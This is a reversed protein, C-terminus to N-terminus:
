HPGNSNKPDEKIKKTKKEKKESKPHQKRYVFDERIERMLVRVYFRQIEEEIPLDGTKFEEDTDNEPINMNFIEICGCKACVLDLNEYELNKRRFPKIVQALNHKELCKCMNCEVYANVGRTYKLM